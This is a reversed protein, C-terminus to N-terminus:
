GHKEKHNGKMKECSDGCCCCGGTSAHNSETQHKSCSDGCCGTHSGTANEHKMCSDGCCAGERTGEKAHNKAADGKCCSDGCCAEKAVQRNSEHHKACEGSADCCAMARPTEKEKPSDQPPGQALAVATLVMALVIVVGVIVGKPNNM